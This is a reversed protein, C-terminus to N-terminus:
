PNAAYYSAVFIEVLSDIAGLIGEEGRAAPAAGGFSRSWTTGLILGRVSAEGDYCYSECEADNDGFRMIHVLERVELEVHYIIQSAGSKSIVNVNVGLISESDGVKIGERRLHNSMRAKLYEADIGVDTVDDELDFVILSFLPYLGDLRDAELIASSTGPTLSVGTIILLGTFVRLIDRVNSGGRVRDSTDQSLTWDIPVELRFGSVTLILGNIPDLVIEHRGLVRVCQVDMVYRRRQFPSPRM